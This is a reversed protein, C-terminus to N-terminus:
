TIAESAGGGADSVRRREERGLLPWCPRGRQESRHSLESSSSAKRGAQGGDVGCSRPRGWEQGAPNGVAGSQLCRYKSIKKESEAILGGHHVPRTPMFETGRPM